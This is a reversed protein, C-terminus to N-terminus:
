SPAYYVDVVPDAALAPLAPALLAACGLLTRLLRKM